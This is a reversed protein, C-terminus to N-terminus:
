ASVRGNFNLCWMRLSNNYHPLKNELSTQQVPPRLAQGDGEVGAAGAAFDAAPPETSGGQRQGHCSSPQQQTGPELTDCAASSGSVWAATPQGTRSNSCLSRQTHQSPVQLTVSMRCARLCAPTCAFTLSAACCPRCTGHWVSQAKCWARVVGAACPLAPETLGCM